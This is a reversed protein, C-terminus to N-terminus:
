ERSRNLDDLSLNKLLGEERYKSHIDRVRSPTINASKADENAVAAYADKRTAGNRRRKEVLAAIEIHLGEDAAPRGRRKALGLWQQLAAPPDDALLIRLGANQLFRTVEIPPYEEPPNLTGRALAILANVAEIRLRESGEPDAAIVAISPQANLLLNPLDDLSGTM